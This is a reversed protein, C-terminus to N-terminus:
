QYRDRIFLRNEMDILLDGKEGPGGCFRLLRCKTVQQSLDPEVDNHQDADASPAEEPINTPVEAEVTPIV